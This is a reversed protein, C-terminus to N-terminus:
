TAILHVHHRIMDMLGPVGDTVGKRSLVFFGDARRKTLGLATASNMLVQVGQPLATELAIDSM